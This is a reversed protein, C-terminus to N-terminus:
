PLHHRKGPRPGLGAHFETWDHSTAKNERGLREYFEPDGSLVSPEAQIEALAPELLRGVSARGVMGSWTWVSPWEGGMRTVSVDIEGRPDHVVVIQVTSSELVVRSSELVVRGSEQETIKFDHDILSSWKESM